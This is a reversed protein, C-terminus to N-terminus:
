VEVSHSKLLEDIGKQGMYSFPTRQYFAWLVLQVVARSRSESRMELGRFHPSEATWQIEEGLDENCSVSIRFKHCLADVEGYAVTSVRLQEAHAWPTTVIREGMVKDSVFWDISQTFDDFHDVRYIIGHGEMGKMAHYRADIENNHMANFDIYVRRALVVDEPKLSVMMTDNVTYHLIGTGRGHDHQCYVYKAGGVRAYAIYSPESFRLNGQDAGLIIPYSKDM